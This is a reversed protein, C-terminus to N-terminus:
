LRAIGDSTNLIEVFDRYLPSKALARDLYGLVVHLILTNTIQMRLFLM